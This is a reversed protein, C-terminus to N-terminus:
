VLFAGESTFDGDTSADEGTADDRRLHGTSHDDAPVVEVVDRFVTREMYETRAERARVRNSRTCVTVLLAVLVKGGM